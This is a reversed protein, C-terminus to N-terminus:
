QSWSVPPDNYVAVWIHCIVTALVLGMVLLLLLLILYIPLSCKM